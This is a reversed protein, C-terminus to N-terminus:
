LRASEPVAATLDKPPLLGAAAEVIADGIEAARALHRTTRFALRVAHTLFPDEARLLQLEGVLHSYTTDNRRRQTAPVDVTPLEIQLYEALAETAHLNTESTWQL